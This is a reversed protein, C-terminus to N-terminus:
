IHCVMLGSGIRRAKVLVCPMLMLRWCNRHELLLWLLVSLSFGPLTVQLQRIRPYPRIFQVHM